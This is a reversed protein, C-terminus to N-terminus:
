EADDSEPFLPPLNEKAYYRRINSYLVMSENIYEELTANNLIRWDEPKRVVGAESTHAEVTPCNPNYIHILCGNARCFEAENDFRIDPIVWLGPGLTVNAYEIWFDDRLARGFETGYLQLAKRPSFGWKPDVVDKLDGYLHDISWDFVRALHEKMPDALAFRRFGAEKFTDALTDKGSRAPGAIGVIFRKNM